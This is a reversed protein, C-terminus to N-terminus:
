VACRSLKRRLTERAEESVGIKAFYLRIDPFRERFMELFKSMNNENPVVINMDVEPFNRHIQELRKSSCEKTLMYDYIIDEDSVNCLMLLIASVVGTRDKGATCNIMVGEDAEAIARFVKPMNAAMAIDMYSHPVAEANEPIGSGEDIPIHHYHFGPAEAFGSPSKDVDDNGRMDIITTIHHKRLFDMDKESPYKQIDSRLVADMCTYRTTGRVRYGGLERTNLTTELLSCPKNKWAWRYEDMEARGAWFMELERSCADVAMHIFADAFEETFFFIEGQSYPLFDNKMEAVFNRADFPYIECIAEKEFDAPISLEDKLQYQKVVYTNILAYDNHLRDVNGPAKSDWHHLEYMFYRFLIDQILHLYYGLYLDDERMKRGFKERYWTLDYTKKTTGCLRIKLHSDETTRGPACADPLVSGLKLRNPDKFPYIKTLEDTIALHIIRSAM